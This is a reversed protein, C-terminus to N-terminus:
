TSGMGSRRHCAGCIVQEGTLNIDGHVTATMIEGSPLVGQMYMKKGRAVSQPDPAAEAAPSLDQAIAPVPHSFVFGAGILIAAARTCHGSFTM